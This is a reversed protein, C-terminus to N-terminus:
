YGCRPDTYGESFTDHPGKEMEPSYIVSEYTSDMEDYSLVQPPSPVRPQPMHYQPPSQPMPTGPISDSYLDLLSPPYTPTIEGEHIIPFQSDIPPPAQQRAHQDMTMAPGPQMRHPMPARRVSPTKPPPGGSLSPPGPRLDLSMNGMGQAQPTHQRSYMNQSPAPYPGQPFRSGQPRPTGMESQAASHSSTSYAPSMPMQRPPMEYMGAAPNISGPQPANSM